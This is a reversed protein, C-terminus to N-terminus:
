ANPIALESTIGRTRRLSSCSGRLDLCVGPASRRRGTSTYAYVDFRFRLLQPFIICWHYRFFGASNAAISYCFLGALANLVFFALIADLWGLTLRDIRNEM